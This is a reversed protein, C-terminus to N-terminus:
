KCDYEDISKYREASLCSREKKSMHRLHIAEITFFCEIIQAIILFPLLDSFCSKLFYSLVGKRTM